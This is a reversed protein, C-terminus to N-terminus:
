AAALLLLDDDMLQPDFGKEGWAFGAIIVANVALTAGPARGFRIAARRRQYVSPGHSEQETEASATGAVVSVAVSLTQGTASAAGTAAGSVITETDTCTQGGTSAAGSAAGAVVSMAVSLTAGNATANGAELPLNPIPPDLAGHGISWFGTLDSRWLGSRINGTIGRSM